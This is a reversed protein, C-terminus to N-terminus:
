GHNKNFPAIDKLFTILISQSILYMSLLWACIFPLTSFLWLVGINQNNTLYYVTGILIVSSLEELNRSFNIKKLGNIRNNLLDTIKLTSVVQLQDILKTAKHIHCSKILYQNVHFTLFPSIFTSAIIGFALKWLEIAKFSNHLLEFVDGSKMSLVKINFIQNAYPSLFLCFIVFYIIRQITIIPGISSWVEDLIKEDFASM